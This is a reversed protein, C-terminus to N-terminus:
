IDTTIDDIAITGPKSHLAEFAAAADETDEAYYVAYDM